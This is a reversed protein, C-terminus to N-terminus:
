RNHTANRVQARAQRWRYRPKPGVLNQRTSKIIACRDRWRGCLARLLRARGRRARRVTTRERIGCRDERALATRSVVATQVLTPSMWPNREIHRPLRPLKPARSLACPAPTRPVRAWHAALVFVALLAMVAILGPM